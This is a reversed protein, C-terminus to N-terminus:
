GCNSSPQRQKFHSPLTEAVALIRELVGGINESVEHNWFRIVHYGSAELRLTRNADAEESHQGGDVEVILRKLPCVFDPISRGVTVQRRFKLGGLQRGRLARWLENEADTANRRLRQAHPNTTGISM